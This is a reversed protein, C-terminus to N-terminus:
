SFVTLINIASAGKSNTSESADYDHIATKMHKIQREMKKKKQNTDANRHRGTEEEKVEIHIPPNKLL